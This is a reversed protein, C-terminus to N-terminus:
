RPTEGANTEEARLHGYSEVRNRGTEKARYLAEDAAGALTPEFRQSATSAVGVSISVFGYPSSTHEIRLDRVADCMSQATAIAGAEDTGPLIAAFEEGGYRAFLDNPRRVCAHAASAVSQLCADGAVHGYTDNYKKFLDIDVLILGLPVGDRSYREWERALTEDYARRNSIGTLGDTFALRRQESIANAQELAESKMRQLRVALAAFLALSACVLGLEPLTSSHMENGIMWIPSTYLGTGIALVAFGVVVFPADRNGARWGKIGAAVLIGYPIVVAM